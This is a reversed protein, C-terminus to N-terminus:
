IIRQAEFEEIEAETYGLEALIADTHEGLLPARHIETPADSLVIPPRAVQAPREMGPYSVPAYVGVERVHPDDLVQQPSYV